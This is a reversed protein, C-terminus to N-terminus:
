FMGSALVQDVADRYNGYEEELADEASDIFTMSDVNRFVQVVARTSNVVFDGDDKSLLATKVTGDELILTLLATSGSRGIAIEAFVVDDFGQTLEFVQQDGSTPNVIMTALGFDPRSSNYPSNPASLLYQSVLLSGTGQALGKRGIVTFNLGSYNLGGDAGVEVTFTQGSVQAPLSSGNSSAGFILTDPTEFRVQYIGPPVDDFIYNGDADTLVVQNIDQGFANQSAPSTIRVPVGGLAPENSDRVNNRVPNSVSAIYDTFISGSITSPVFERVNVTVTATSTQGESTMTYNFSTEGVFGTTPTFTVSNNAANFV